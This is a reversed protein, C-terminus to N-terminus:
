LTSSIGEVTGKGVVVHPVVVARKGVHHLFRAVNGGNGDLRRARLDAIRVM